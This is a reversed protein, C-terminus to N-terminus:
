APLVNWVWPSCPSPTLGCPVSAGSVIASVQEAGERSGVAGPGPEWGRPPTWARHAEVRALELEWGGSVSVCWAALREPRSRPCWVQGWAPSRAGAPEEVWFVTERVKVQSLGAEWEPRWESLGGWAM